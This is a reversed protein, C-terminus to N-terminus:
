KGICFRSFIERLVDESVSEGTIQGLYEASERIDITVFDLPLGSEHARMASKLSEAALDLQQKHRVNTILVESNAYVSGKAFLEEIEDELSELGTGDLMSAVIVPAECKGDLQRKMENIKDDRAIDTKNIIVIKKKEKVSDLIELDEESIGTQADLVVVSGSKAEFRMDTIFESRFVPM